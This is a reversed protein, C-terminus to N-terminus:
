MRVVKVCGIMPDSARRATTSRVHGVWFKALTDACMEASEGFDYARVIRGMQSDLWKQEPQCGYDRDLIRLITPLYTHFAGEFRGTHIPFDIMDRM